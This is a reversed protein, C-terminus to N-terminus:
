ASSSGECSLSRSAQLRTRIRYAARHYVPLCLPLITCVQTRAIETWLEFAETSFFRAKMDAGDPSGAPGTCTPNFGNGCSALSHIQLVCSVTVHKSMCSSSSLSCHASCEPECRSTSVNLSCETCCGLAARCQNHFTDVAACQPHSGGGSDDSHAYYVEAAGGMTSEWLFNVEHPTSGTLRPAAPLPAAGAAVAWRAWAITALVLLM